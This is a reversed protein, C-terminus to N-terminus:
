IAELASANIEVGISQGLVPLCVVFRYINGKHLLVGEQGKLPGRKVRVRMGKVLFSYPDKKLKSEIMIQVAEIQTDPIPSPGYPTGVIQIVGKASVVDLRREKDFRAFVYNPFLPVRLVKTRYTWRRREELVPLYTEIERAKLINVVIGEHHRRTYLAYWYHSSLNRNSEQDFSIEECNYQSVRIAENSNVNNDLIM